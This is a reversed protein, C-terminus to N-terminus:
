KYYLMDPHNYDWTRPMTRQRKRRRLEKPLEKIVPGVGKHDFTKELFEDNGLVRQDQCDDAVERLFSVYQEHKPRQSSNAPVPVTEQSKDPQSSTEEIDM